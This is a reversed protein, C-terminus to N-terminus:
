WPAGVATVSSIEPAGLSAANPMVKRMRTSPRDPRAVSQCCISITSDTTDIVSPLRAAM